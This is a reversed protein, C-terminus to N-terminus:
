RVRLPIDLLDCIERCKEIATNDLSHGVVSLVVEPIFDKCDKAFELMAEYAGDGFTPDCLKNYTDADPANLSISISDVLGALLNSTKKGNILDSLGNTNLRVPINKSKLFSACELLIEFRETPEGYGCFVVERYLKYNINSLVEMIEELSPEYPLWLSEGYNMGDSSNRLCFSCHLPCKNTINLYLSSGLEYAITM